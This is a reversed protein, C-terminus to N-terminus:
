ANCRGAIEEALVGPDKDGVELVVHAARLYRDARIRLLQRIKKEMQVGQLLPREGADKELRELAKEESIRLFFVRCRKRLLEINDDRLVIGGGCSIVKGGRALQERLARHERERFGEEGEESFIEGISKGAEASIVEDLDVFDMGLRSALLAGVTSKGSGMFGIVAVIDGNVDAPKQEERVGSMSM